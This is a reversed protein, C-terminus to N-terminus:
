FIAETAETAENQLGVWASPPGLKSFQKFQKLQMFKKLKKTVEDRQIRQIQNEKM